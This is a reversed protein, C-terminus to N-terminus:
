RMVGGMSGNLRLEVQLRTVDALLTLLDDRAVGGGAGGVELFSRETM